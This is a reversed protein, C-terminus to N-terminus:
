PSMIQYYKEFNGVTGAFDRSDTIYSFEQRIGNNILYNKYTTVGSKYPTYTFIYENNQLTIENDRKRSGNAIELTNIPTIDSHYILGPYEQDTTSNYVKNWDIGNFNSNGSRWILQRSIRATPTYKFSQNTEPWTNLSVGNIFSSSEDINKILVYFGTQSNSNALQKIDKLAALSSRETGVTQVGWQSVTGDEFLVVGGVGVTQIDSINKTFTITKSLLTNSTGDFDIRNADGWLVLTKLDTKLAAYNNAGCVIKKVGTLNTNLIRIRGNATPIGISAGSANTGGWPNPTTSSTNGWGFVDGNQNVAMAVSGNTDVQIV